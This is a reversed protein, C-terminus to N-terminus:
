FHMRSFPAPKHFYSIYGVGNLGGGRMSGLCFAEKLTLELQHFGLAIIDILLDRGGESVRIIHKFSKTASPEMRVMNMTESKTNEYATM